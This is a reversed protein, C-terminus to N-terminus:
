RTRGDRLLAITETLRRQRTEPRKAGEIAMVFGQKKTYSLGDFFRKADTDRGLAEALDAPVTVERPETDLELDVVIDDGAAVGASTRNGANVGLMYRGGMSAVTSRYTHGNITVRVPPRRGAKLGAVVEDPVEFGTATKGAPQLVTRFRM